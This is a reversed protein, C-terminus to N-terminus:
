DNAAEMWRIRKDGRWWTMQRKAYQRTKAAIEEMLETKEITSEVKGNLAHPGEWEPMLLGEPGRVAPGFPLKGSRVAVAIERYGHSKLGPDDTTSGHALLGRLEEVWGAAFMRRVRDNIRRHLEERPLTLGMILLDYPCLARTKLSSAKEQALMCIEVARILYVKNRPDISLASEPDMKQLTRFLSVGADRDYEGSLRERLAPDSEQVFELNDIVASIYLMSGGTLMPINGRGHIEGIIRMVEQKFWAATVEEKPDLVDILHHPIGQMEEPTIKATGIDLHRYLQRSDANAIEVKHIQPVPINRDWLGRKKEPQGLMHALAISYATKGSATPGLLVLLPHQATQLFAEIERVTAHM